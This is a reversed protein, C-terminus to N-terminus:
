RPLVYKNSWRKAEGKRKDVPWKVGPTRYLLVAIDAVSEELEKFRADSVLLAAVDKRLRRLAPEVENLYFASHADLRRRLDEVESQLEQQTM